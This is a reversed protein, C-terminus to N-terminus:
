VVSRHYAHLYSPCVSTRLTTIHASSPRLLDDTEYSLCTSLGREFPVHLHPTNGREFMYLSHTLLKVAKVNGM